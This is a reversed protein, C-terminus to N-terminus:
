TSTSISRGAASDDVVLVDAGALGEDRGAPSAATDGTVQVTFWFTSGEGLTSTVGREGGMLEVLQGCIALGLGTGGYKRSTSSDAQIFPEFISELKDVAIGSGTDTVDFRVAAADGDSDAMSVRVVVEGASTFKIANGMINTLVQRVRGPDGTLVEPV